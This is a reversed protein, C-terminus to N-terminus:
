RQVLLSQSSSKQKRADTNADADADADVDAEAIPFADAAKSTHILRWSQNSRSSHRTSDNIEGADISIIWALM